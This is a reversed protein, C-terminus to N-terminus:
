AVEFWRRAIEIKRALAVTAGDYLLKAVKPAILRGGFECVYIVGRANPRAKSPVFKRVFMCFGGVVHWTGCFTIRKRVSESLCGDGDVFGRWYHRKLDDEINAPELAMTKNPRVGLRALARTLPQSSFSASSMPTVSPPLYLPGSWKLARAFAVVHAHDVSSLTLTLRHGFVCGDASFFGLWYAKEESDIRDFFTEDLDYKRHVTSNSRALGGARRLALKCAGACLGFRAAAQKTTAGALYADVMARSTAADVDVGTPM